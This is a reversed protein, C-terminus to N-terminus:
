GDADKDLSRALKWLIRFGTISGLVLGAITLAPETELEGDLWWGGLMCGVVAAAFEIGVVTARGFM